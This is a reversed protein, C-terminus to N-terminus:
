QFLFITIQCFFPLIPTIKMMIVINSFIEKSFSDKVCVEYKFKKNKYIGENKNVEMVEIQRVAMISDRAHVFVADDTLKYIFHDHHLYCNKWEKTM